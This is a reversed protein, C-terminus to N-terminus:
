RTGSTTASASHAGAAFSLSAFIGAARVFRNKLTM